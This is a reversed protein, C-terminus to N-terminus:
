SEPVEPDDKVVGIEVRDPQAPQAPQIRGREVDRVIQVEDASLKRFKGLRCNPLLHM